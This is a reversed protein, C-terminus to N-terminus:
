PPAQTLSDLCGRMFRIAKLITAEETLSVSSRTRTIPARFPVLCLESVPPPFARAGPTAMGYLM